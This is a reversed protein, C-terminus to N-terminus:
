ETQKEESRFTRAREKIKDFAKSGLALPKEIASDFAESMTVAEFQLLMAIKKNLPLDGFQRQLEDTTPAAPQPRPVNTGVNIVGRGEIKTQCALRLTRNTEGSLERIEAHSPPSLLDAGSNIVVVCNPCEAEGATCGKGLKVGLRRAADILYTGQAVLGSIGSPEFTIAVDM